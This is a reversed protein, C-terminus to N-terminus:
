QLQRLLQAKLTMKMLLMLELVQTLPMRLDEALMRLQARLLGAQMLVGPLIAPGVFPLQIRELDLM